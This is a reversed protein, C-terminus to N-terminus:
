PSQAPSSSWQKIVKVDGEPAPWLVVLYHDAGDTGVSAITDFGGHFSRVRYWGPDVRLDAVPGGTCEHVQLHGTPLHLSGEAVHDWEELAILPEADRLEIVVDVSMNREPQVVFVNSAVKVRRQTDEETYDIPADPLIGGDWLYFQHYDAFVTLELRELLMTKSM